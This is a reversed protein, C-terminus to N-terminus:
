PECPYGHAYRRGDFSVEISRVLHGASIGVFDRQPQSQYTAPRGATNMKAGNAELVERILDFKVDDTLSALWKSGRGYPDTMRELQRRSFNSPNIGWHKRPDVVEIGDSIGGEIRGLPRPDWQSM